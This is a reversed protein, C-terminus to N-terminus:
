KPARIRICGVDKMARAEKVYMKTTTAYLVVQQGIWQSPRVTNLVHAISNGNTKNLVLPKMPTWDGDPKDPQLRSEIKGQLQTFWLVSKKEKMGGPLTLEVNRRVLDIQILAPYNNLDFWRLYEKDFLADVHDDADLDEAM